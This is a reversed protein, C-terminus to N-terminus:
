EEVEVEVLFSHEIRLNQSWYNEQDEELPWRMISQFIHLAGDDLPSQIYVEESLGPCYAKLQNRAAIEDFLPFIWILGPAGMGRLHGNDLEEADPYRMPIVNPIPIPIAFDDLDVMTELTAGIKFDSM